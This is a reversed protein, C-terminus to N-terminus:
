RSLEALKEAIQQDIEEKSVAVWAGRARVIGWNGASNRRRWRPVDMKALEILAEYYDHCQAEKGKEGITISIRPGSRASRVVHEPTFAQGEASQPVWIMGKENPSSVKTPDFPWQDDAMNVWRSPCFERRRMLWRRAEEAAISGAEDPNLDGISVANRVVAIPLGSLLQLGEITLVGGFDIISRSAVGEWIFDYKNGLLASACDLGISGKAILARVRAERDELSDSRGDPERPAIGQGAYESGQRWLVTAEVLDISRWEETDLFERWGIRNFLDIRRTEPSVLCKTEVLLARMAAHAADKGFTLELAAGLRRLGEGFTVAVEFHLAVLGDADRPFAQQALKHAM